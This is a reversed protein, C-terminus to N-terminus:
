FPSLIRRVTYLKYSYYESKSVPKMPLWCMCINNRRFFNLVDSVTWFEDNGEFDFGQISCNGGVIALPNEFSGLKGTVIANAGDAIKCSIM